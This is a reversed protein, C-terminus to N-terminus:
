EEESLPAPWVLSAEYGDLARAHFRVPVLSECSPLSTSLEAGEALGFGFGYWFSPQDPEPIDQARRTMLLGDALLGRAAIRGMQVGQGRRFHVRLAAPVLPELEASATLQVPVRRVLPYRIDLCLGEVLAPLLVHGQAALAELSRALRERDGTELTSNRLYGGAGRAM